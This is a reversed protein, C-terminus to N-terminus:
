IVIVRNFERLIFRVVRNEPISVFNHKANSKM